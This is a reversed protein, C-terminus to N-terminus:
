YLGCGVFLPRLSNRGKKKDTCGFPFFFCCLCRLLVFLSLWLLFPCRAYFSAFVPTFPCSLSLSSSFRIFYLYLLYFASAFVGCAKLGGLEVRACFGCLGRLAGLCCLGVGFMYFGRFVGKFRSVSGYELTVSWLCLPLAPLFASCRATDQGINSVDAFYRLSSACECWCVRHVAPLCLWLRCGSQVWM